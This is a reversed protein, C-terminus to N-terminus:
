VPARVPRAESVDPATTSSVSRTNAGSNECNGFGTRAAKIMSATTMPIISTGSIRRRALTCRKSKQIAVAAIAPFYSPSVLDPIAVRVSM